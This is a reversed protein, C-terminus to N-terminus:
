GARDGRVRLPGYFFSDPKSFYLSMDHLGRSIILVRIADLAHHVDHNSHLTRACNLSNSRPISARINRGTGSMGSFVLRCNRATLQDATSHCTEM